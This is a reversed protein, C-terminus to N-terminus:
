LQTIRGSNEVINLKIETYTTQVLKQVKGDDNKM